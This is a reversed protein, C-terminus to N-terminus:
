HNRRFLKKGKSTERLAVPVVVVFYIVVGGILSPLIFNSFTLMGTPSFYMPIAIVIPFAVVMVALGFLLASISDQILKLIKMSPLNRAICADGSSVKCKVLARIIDYGMRCCAYWNTSRYWHTNIHSGNVSRPCWTYGCNTSSAGGLGIALYRDVVLDSEFRALDKCMMLKRDEPVFYMGLANLCNEHDPNNPCIDNYGQRFVSSGGIDAWGDGDSDPCGVRWPTETATGYISPCDDEYNGFGDEDPDNFWAPSQGPNGPDLHGFAFADAIVIGYSPPQVGGLSVSPVYGVVM